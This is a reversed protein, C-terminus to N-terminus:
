ISSVRKKQVVAAGPFVEQVVGPAYTLQPSGGLITLDLRDSRADTKGSWRYKFCSEFTFCIM